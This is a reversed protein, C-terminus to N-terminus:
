MVVRANDSIMWPKIYWCYIVFKLVLNKILFFFKFSMFSKKKRNIVIQNQKLECKGYVGYVM